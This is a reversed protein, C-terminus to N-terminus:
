EALAQSIAGKAELRLDYAKQKLRRYHDELSVLIHAATRDLM